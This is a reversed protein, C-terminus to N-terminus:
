KCQWPGPGQENYIALAVSINPGVEWLQELTYGMRQTRAAHWRTSIQFLGRHSGNTARPNFGSECKAVRLAWACASRFADCIAQQISGTPQPAATAVPARRPQAPPTVARSPAPRSRSARPPSTPRTSTTPDPVTGEVALRTRDPTAIPVSAKSPMAVKPGGDGSTSCAAMLAAAAIAAGAFRSRRRAHRHECTSRRSCCVSAVCRPCWLPGGPIADADFDENCRTCTM